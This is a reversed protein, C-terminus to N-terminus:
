TALGGAWMLAPLAYPDPKHLTSCKVSSMCATMCVAYMMLAPTCHQEDVAVKTHRLRSIIKMYALASKV